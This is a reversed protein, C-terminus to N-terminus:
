EQKYTVWMAFYTVRRLTLDRIVLLYPGPFYKTAIGTTVTSFPMTMSVNGASCDPTFKGGCGTINQLLRYAFVSKGTAMYLGGVYTAHPASSNTAIYANLYGSLNKSFVNFSYVVNQVPSNGPYTNNGRAVVPVLTSTGSPATIKLVIYYTFNSLPYYASCGTEPVVCIGTLNEKFEGGPPLIFIGTSAKGGLGTYSFCTTFGPICVSDISLSITSVTGKNVLDMDLTDNEIVASKVTIQPANQTSTSTTRTTSRPPLTLSQFTYRQSSGVVSPAVVFFVAGVEIIIAVGVAVWKLLEGGITSPFEM